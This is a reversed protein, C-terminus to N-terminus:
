QYELTVHFSGTYNGKPQSPAVQLTAGVTVTHPGPALWGGVPASSVFNTLAIRNPGSRLQESGNAPLTLISIRDGNGAIAFGAPASSSNLLIVAGGGTRAGSTNVTVTGGGAAVFRGFVLHSTTSINKEAM